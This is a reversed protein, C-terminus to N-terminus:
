QAHVSASTNLVLKASSTSNHFTHLVVGALVINDTVNSVLVHGMICIATCHPSWDQGTLGTLSQMHLSSNSVELMCIEWHPPTLCATAAGGDGHPTHLDSLRMCAQKCLEGSMNQLAKGHYSGGEGKGSTAGLEGVECWERYYCSTNASKGTHHGPAPLGPLLLPSPYALGRWSPRLLLTPMPLPSDWLLPRPGVQDWIGRECPWRTVARM